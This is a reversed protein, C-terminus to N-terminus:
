HLAVPSFVDTAPFAKAITGYKAAADIVPQLLLADLREGYYARIMKNAVEAPMKSAKVLIQASQAHNANGWRAAEAFVGVLKKVADPHKLAWESTTAWGSFMFEPAVNREAASIARVKGTDLFNTVFPESVTAGDVTGNVIAAGMAPFPIEVFKVTKSDGGNNDIWAQTPIQLINKIGNTALTKGSFDKATRITSATPVMLVYSPNARTYITAPAIYTLPLGRSHASAMTVSDAIGLDIAGGALASASAPGSQFTQVDVNLGAKSFMGVDQAYFVEATNDITLTGIRVVEDARAPRAPFLTVASAAAASSLFTARRCSM